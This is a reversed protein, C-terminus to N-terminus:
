AAPFFGSAAGLAQTVISTLGPGLTGCVGGGSIFGGGFGAKIGIWIGAQARGRKAFRVSACPKPDACSPDSTAVSTASAIARMALPTLM